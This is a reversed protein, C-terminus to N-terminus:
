RRLRVGTGRPLVGWFTKFWSSLRLRLRRPRARMLSVQAWCSAELHDPDGPGIWVWGPDPDDGALGQEEEDGADAVVCTLSSRLSDPTSVTTNADSISGNDSGEDEEKIVWLSPVSAVRHGRHARPSCRSSFMRDTDLLERAGGTSDTATTNEEDEEGEDEDEETIATPSFGSERFPRFCSSHVVGINLSVEGDDDRSDNSDDRSYFEQEVDDPWDFPPGSRALPGRVESGVVKFKERFALTPSTNFAPSPMAVFFPEEDYVDARSNVMDLEIVNTPDRSGFQISRNTERPPGVPVGITGSRNSAAQNLSDEEHVGRGRHTNRFNLMALFSNVYVKSTVWGLVIWGQSHPLALFIILFLIQIVTFVTGRNFCYVIANEYFGEPKAMGPNRSPQMCWFMAGVIVIDAAVAIGLGIGRFVKVSNTVIEFFLDQRAINVIGILNLVGSVLALIVIFVPIPLRKNAVSWLRFAYYCQVAVILVTSLVEEAIFTQTTNLQNFATMFDTILYRYARPLTFVKVVAFHSVLWLAGVLAKTGMHDAPFRTYYIYTQFFTLGYLVVSFIFGILLVGFTSALDDSTVVVPTGQTSSM